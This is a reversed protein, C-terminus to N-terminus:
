LGTFRPLRPGEEWAGLGEGPPGAPFGPPSSGKPQPGHGEAWGLRRGLRGKCCGLSPGGRAWSGRKQGLINVGAEGGAGVESERHGGM